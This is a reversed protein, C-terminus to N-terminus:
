VVWYTSISKIPRQLIDRGHVFVDHHVVLMISVQHKSGSSVNTSVWEEAVGQSLSRDLDDRSPLPLGVSCRVPDLVLMVVSALSKQQERELEEEM